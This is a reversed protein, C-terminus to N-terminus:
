LGEPLELAVNREHEHFDLIAQIMPLYALTGKRPESEEVYRWEAPVRELVARRTRPDLPKQDIYAALLIGAAEGLTM